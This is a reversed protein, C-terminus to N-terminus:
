SNHKKSLIRTISMVFTLGFLITISAIIPTQKDYGTPPTVVAEAKAPENIDVMYNEIETYEQNKNNNNNNTLGGPTNNKARVVIADTVQAKNSSYMDDQASLIREAVLEIVTSENPYIVNQELNTIKYVKNGNSDTQSTEKIDKAGKLSMVKLQSSMVDTIENIKVALENNEPAKTTNDVKITYTIQLTSGYLADEHIEARVFTSGLENEGMSLDAVGDLKTTKPNGDFVINNQANILKVNTIAKNVKLTQANRIVLGLNFGGYVRKQTNGSPIEQIATGKDNEVTISIKTVSAEMNSAKGSNLMNRVNKIDSAVSYNDGELQKYWQHEQNQIKSENKIAENVVNSTIVTSEYLSANIEKNDIKSSLTDEAIVDGSASVIKFKGNGYIFKLYYDGPVVGKFIYEGNENTMTMAATTFATKDQNIKYLNSVQADLVNEANDLLEVIVGQVSKEGNDIKGNGSSTSNDIKDEFVRGRIEREEGLKFILYPAEHNRTDESTYHTQNKKISNKWSYDDRTYEHYGTSIANTPFKEIIGNPNQLISMLANHKVSFKIKKIAIQEVGIGNEKIDSLYEPKITATDNNVTWNPDNLTYRNTDFKNVLNTIHLKEEHYLEKLSDATRNNTNKIAIEYTVDVKLEQTSNKMDYSIDSPYISRSYASISTGSQWNVTPAAIAKSNGKGGYTYRYTYGQMTVDVSELDQTLEYDAEPIKKIGLNIYELVRSTENYLKSYLNGSLGYTKEQETKNYTLAIGSLESDKQAVDEMLARSGNKVINNINESNFRVPIYKSIDEANAGNQVKVGNYNFEVYYNKLEEKVINDFKYAGQNNTRTSDVVTKDSKKKLDVKVGEVLIEGEDYLSNADAKTNPIQDIWVYGEISIKEVEPIPTPTLTPTVTIEPTPTPTVTIEPTPTPTATIEPTPTPTATIEPTPTKTPTPTLKTEKNYLTFEIKETKAKITKEGFDVWKNKSDYKAQSELKYGSPTAVEYVHYTGQKLGKLTIAGNKNTTYAGKKAASLNSNYKYSGASGTLWGESTKIIFQAGKLKKAKNTADSKNIILSHKENHLSYKITKTDVKIEQEGCDVWKNKSDYKAQSTLDYGTPTTIEYVHYKGQKLGSLTITGNKDTTFPSKKANALKTNYKYSGESGTLWGESTKIIFKAGKLRQSTTILDSKVITLAHKIEPKIKITLSDESEEWGGEPHLLKQCGDGLKLFYLDAVIIPDGEAYFNVSTAVKGSTNKIYFKSNSTITKIEKTGAADSYLKIKSSSITSGDKAKVTIGSLTGTYKIKIPGIMNNSTELQTAGVNKISAEKFKSKSYSNADEFLTQLGEVYFKTSGDTEFPTIGIKSGCCTLWTKLREWVANQRVGYNDSVPGEGFYFDNEDGFLYFALKANIGNSITQETYLNTAKKGEIRVHAFENFYGGEFPKYKEMCYYESNGELYDVQAGWANVRSTGAIIALIFIAIISLKKLIKTRFM